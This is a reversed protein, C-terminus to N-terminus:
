KYEAKDSHGVTNQSHFESKHNSKAESYVADLNALMQNISFKEEVTKRANASLKKRLTKDEILRIIASAISEPDKPSVLLGNYNNKIVENVGPINSAVIANGSSMAELLALPMGEKLSPIVFISSRSLIKAVDKRPLIETFRLTHRSVGLDTALKEMKPKLPGYGVLLFHPVESKEAVLKASKILTEIGKEKVFRGAWVVLTDDKSSAPKFFETDVGNHVLRIKEPPAGFHVIEELDSQTLCVILDVKRFLELGLTRIYLNQFLNPSFGRNAFVGHVSVVSPLGLKQATWVAQVTSLFLHSEGHIIEPKLKELTHPLEPLYPYNEMIGSLPFNLGSMRHIAFGEPVKIVCSEGTRNWTFVDVSHGMQIQRASLDYFYDRPMDPYFMHRIRAIRM